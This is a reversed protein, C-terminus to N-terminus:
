NRDTVNKVNINIVVKAQVPDNTIMLVRPKSRLKKMQEAVATIKLRASEGPAINTKNLEVELGATFMQLSRIELNRKGTNTIVIDGKIKKKGDFAGLNLEKSSLKIKPAESKQVDTMYQFGPLLVASVPLEVEDSVKEGPEFGLFVSTQTLGFDRLKRSDLTILVEGTHRPAIKVPYVEASLYNPLHMVVPESTRDSNNRIHLKIQPRDGRNVDDFEIDERDATLDGFSYKFDGIYDKKESVVVGKVTLMLPEKSGNSYIGIEKQFHGLTNADYVEKVEFSAGGEVTKPLDVTTCGCSTRVNEIYLTRSGKNKLKFSATVPNRYMVQGLNIVAKDAIIKQANAGLATM